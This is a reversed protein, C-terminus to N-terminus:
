SMSMSDLKNQMEQYFSPIPRSLGHKQQLEQLISEALDQKMEEPHIGIMERWLVKRHTSPCIQFVCVKVGEEHKHVEYKISGWLTSKFFDFTEKLRTVSDFLDEYKISIDMEDLMSKMFRFCVSYGAGFEVYRDILIEIAGLMAEFVDEYLSRLQNKHCPESYYIFSPIGIKEALEALCKRSVLKIKLRAIIKVGLPTHLFPFRQSIYYVICKNVTADGMIELWEYNQENHVSNHTFAQHFYAMCEEKTTLLSIYKPKLLAKSSLISELWTQFLQKQEFWGKHVTVSATTTSTVPTTDLIVMKAQKDTLV